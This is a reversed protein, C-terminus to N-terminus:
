SGPELHLDLGIDLAPASQTIMSTSVYDAGSKAYAAVNDLTIGGSVEVVTDPRPGGRVLTVCAAAEAPTMNDLMVIDAAAAVAAEVQERRDCEVEIRHRPWHDRARRVASAISLEGLHNDKLLVLDSLSARHNHGGGARVAAKELVRLGPTTKRTDWIELRAGAADVFRRTLTAVGSLHCAFNLATREGTLVARTSGHVRAIVSGVGIRDGDKVEWDIRVTPDLQAYTEIVCRRGALVGPARSVLSAVSTADVPLLAATVDGVPGLDEALARTVADRVAGIPPDVDSM